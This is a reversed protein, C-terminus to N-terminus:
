IRGLHGLGKQQVGEAMKAVKSPLAREWNGDFRTKTPIIGLKDKARRITRWSYGAEEAKARAQKLLAAGPKLVEQLFEVGESLASHEVGKGQPSMAEDATVTVAEAGWMVRSTEILGAPNEVQASQVTFVLGTQDNGINNKTPLFLRRKDNEKDM